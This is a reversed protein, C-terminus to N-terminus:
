GMGYYIERHAQERVLSRDLPGLLMFVCPTVVAGLLATGLVRLGVWQLSVALLEQQRLVGFFLLTLLAGFVFGFVVPTVVSDALVLHRFLGAVWGVLVFCFVSVGLPIPSFMDHVMGALLAALMQDSVRRNLAYYLVIAPLVPLKVDGLFDIPPFFLQVQAGFFVAVTMLMLIM